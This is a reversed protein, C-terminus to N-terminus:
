GKDKKRKKAEIKIKETWPNPDVQKGCRECVRSKYGSSHGPAWYIELPETLEKHPCNKRLEEVENEFKEKLKKYESM